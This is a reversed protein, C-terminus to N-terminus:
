ACSVYSHLLLHSSPLRVRGCNALVVSKIPHLQELCEAVDTGIVCVSPSSRAPSIMRAGSFDDAGLSIISFPSDTLKCIIQMMSLIYIYKGYPLININDIIAYNFHVLSLM